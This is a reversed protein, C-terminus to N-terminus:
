YSKVIPEDESACQHVQFYVLELLHAALGSTYSKLDYEILITVSLLLGKSLVNFVITVM